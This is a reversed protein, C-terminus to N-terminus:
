SAAMRPPAAASSADDHHRVRSAVRRGVRIFPQEVFRHSLVALGIPLVVSLPFWQLRGLWATSEFEDWVLFLQQWLYLSYSIRGLWRLTSLELLRGLTRKPAVVTGVVLLAVLAPRVALQLAQVFAQDANVFQTVVLAALLAWYRWGATISAVRARAAPVILFLIGYVCGWMLGDVQTDTRDIYNLSWGDTLGMSLDVFRWVAIVAILAFCLKLGRRAGLLVLAIPWFLYFQEEIALSWFHGLYWSGGPVYNYAFFLASFWKDVPVPIM